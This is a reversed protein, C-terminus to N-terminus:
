RSLAVPRVRGGAIRFARLEPRAGGLGVILYLWEPYYAEAVDTASPRADGRPHSHYVGIIGLPPDLKRLVRRADVHAADDVKFRTEPSEAVNAMPLIAVLDRRRGILFGCCECSGAAIAERVIARRLVSPLRITM